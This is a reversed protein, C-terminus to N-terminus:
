NKNEREARFAAVDEEIEKNVKEFHGPDEAQLREITDAASSVLREFDDKVLDYPPEINRLSFESRLDDETSRRDGDGFEAASSRFAQVWAGVLEDMTLQQHKRGRAAYDAAKNAQDSVLWGELDKKFEDQSM